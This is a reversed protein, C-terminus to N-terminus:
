RGGGGVIARARIHPGGSGVPVWEGNKGCVGAETKIEKGVLDVSLLTQLANGLLAVDKLRERLEGNTIKFGELASFNFYGDSTMATGGSSGVLYVGDKTEKIIEEFKANGAEMLTNSMRVNNFEGRCNGTSIEGMKGASNRSHLFRRLVGNEIVVTREAAAGDRDFGATGYGGALTKDEVITVLESGVKKGIKGELVSDKNTIHDAEAMHGLAEHVFTGVLLPDMVVTMEGAPAPRASLLARARSACDSAFSPSLAEMIEWGATRRDSVFMREIRGGEKAICTLSVGCRILKQSLEVGDSTRLHSNVLNDSYTIDTDVKGAGRAVEKLRQVKTALDIEVPDIKVPTEYGARAPNFNGLSYAAPVLKSLRLANKKARELLVRVTLEDSTSAYAWAGRHFARMLFSTEVGDKAELVEGNKLRVSTGSGEVREIDWYDIEASAM